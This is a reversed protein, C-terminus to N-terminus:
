CMHKTEVLRIEIGLGVHSYSFSHGGPAFVHLRECALDFKTSGSDCVTAAWHAQGPQCIEESRAGAASNVVDWDM